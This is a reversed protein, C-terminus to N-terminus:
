AVPGSEVHNFAEVEQRSKENDTTWKQETFFRGTYLGASTATMAAGSVTMAIINISLTEALLAGFAAISLGCIGISLTGVGGVLLLICFVAMVDSCIIQMFLSPDMPENRLDASLRTSFANMFAAKQQEGVPNRAAIAIAYTYAARSIAYAHTYIRLAARRAQRSKESSSPGFTADFIQSADSGFTIQELHEVTADFDLTTAKHEAQLTDKKVPYQKMADHMKTVSLAQTAAHKSLDIISSIAVLAAADASEESFKRAEDAAIIHAARAAFADPHIKEHYSKVALDILPQIVEFSKM